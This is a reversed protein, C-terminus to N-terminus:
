RLVISQKDVKWEYGNNTTFLVSENIDDRKLAKSLKIRLSSIYRKVTTNGVARDMWVTEEIRAKPCSTMPHEMLYGLIEAEKRELRIADESTYLYKEDAALDLVICKGDMADNKIQEYDRKSVPKRNEQQGKLLIPEKLNLKIKDLYLEIFWDYDNNVNSAQAEKIYEMGKHVYGLRSYGLALNCLLKIRKSGGIGKELAERGYFLVAEWKRDERAFVFSLHYFADPKNPSYITAKRLIKYSELYNGRRIKENKGVQLYLDALTVSYRPEKNDLDLFEKYLQIGEELWSNRENDGGLGERDLWNDELDLLEGFKSKKM